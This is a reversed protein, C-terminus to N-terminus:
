LITQQNHNADNSIVINEPTNHGNNCIKDSSYEDHLEILLCTSSIDNWIFAEPNESQKENLYMDNCYTHNYTLVKEVM